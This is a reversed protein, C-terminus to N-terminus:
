SKLLSVFMKARSILAHIVAKKASIPHNSNWDLYYDTHTPKGYVSTHITNDSNPFCKTDLFLINGDNGLAEMTFKMSNKEFYEM